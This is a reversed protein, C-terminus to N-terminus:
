VIQSSTPHANIFTITVNDPLVASGTSALTNLATQDAASRGDVDSFVFKDTAQWNEIVITHAPGPNTPNTEYVFTDGGQNSGFLTTNGTTMGGFSSPGNPFAQTEMYFTNGGGAASANIEDNNGFGWFTGGSATGVVSIDTNSSGFVTVKAAGGTITDSEPTAVTGGGAQFLFKNSGVSYYGGGPGGFITESAASVVSAQGGYGVFLGTSASGDDVVAGNAAFITDAGNTNGTVSVPGGLGVVVANSGSETLQGGPTNGDFVFEQGAGSATVSYVGDSFLAVASAASDNVTGGLSGAALLLSAAGVYNLNDGVVTPANGSLTTGAVTPSYAVVQYGSGFTIAGTITSFIDLVSNSGTAPASAAGATSATFLSSGTNAASLASQVLALLNGTVAGASTVSASGPAGSTVTSNGAM